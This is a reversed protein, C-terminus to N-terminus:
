KELFFNFDNPKLKKFPFIQRKEKDNITNFQTHEPEKMNKLSFSQDLCM